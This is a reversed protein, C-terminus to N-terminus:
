KGGKKKNMGGGGAGGRAGYYEATGFGGRGGGAGGRTAAAYSAANFARRESASQAASGAAASSPPPVSAPGGMGAIIAEMSLGGGPAERPGARTAETAAIEQNFARMQNDLEEEYPRYESVQRDFSRTGIDKATQSLYPIGLRRATESISKERGIDKALREIEELNGGPLQKRALDRYTEMKQAFMYGEMQLRVLADGFIEGGALAQLNFVERRRDKPPAFSVPSEAQKKMVAELMGAYTGDEWMPNPSSGGPGKPFDSYVAHNPHTKTTAVCASIKGGTTDVLTNNFGIRLGKPVKVPDNAVVNGYGRQSITKQGCSQLMYTDDTMPAYKSAFVAKAGKQSLSIYPNADINAIPGGKGVQVVGLPASVMTHKNLNLAPGQGKVTPTDTMTRTTPTAAARMMERAKMASAGSRTKNPMNLYLGDAVQTLHPM